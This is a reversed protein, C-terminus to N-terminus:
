TREARAVRVRRMIEGLVPADALPESPSCAQLHTELVVIEPDSIRATSVLMRSCTACAVVFLRAATEPM